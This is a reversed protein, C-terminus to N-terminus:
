KGTFVAPRKEVFAQAGEKFDESLTVEGFAAVEAQFGDTGDAFYANVATIVKAIAKPGKTAIKALLEKAKAEEEGLPVVYNVLGLRYAEQADIM